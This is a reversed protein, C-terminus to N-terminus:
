KLELVENQYNKMENNTKNLEDIKQQLSIIKNELGKNLNKVHEISRVEIRLKKYQKRALFRRIASQCVIIKRQRKRFERRALWGRVHKQIM